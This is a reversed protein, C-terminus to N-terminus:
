LFHALLAPAVTQASVNHTQGPLEVITAGAIHSATAKVAHHLWPPSKGGILMLTPVHISGLVSALEAPMPGGSQTDGLIAFDNGLTHAVATLKSWVNPMLRMFFIGVTPVGVIRMFLAVAQSRRGAAVHDRIQERFDPPDPYRTGDLALPPEHLALKRTPLGAAVARAALVSGSSTGYVFLPSGVADAIAKLDEIEREVAYPATDGSEGRGRRDFTIVSFRSALLPALKPMPGFQRSCFAGDILLLPPGSGTVQYGIRTGDVSIAISM